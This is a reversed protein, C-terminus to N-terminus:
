SWARAITRWRHRAVARVTNGLSTRFLSSKVRLSLRLDASSRGIRIVHEGAPLVWRRAREDYRAFARAPIALRVPTVRGPEATVTGFAALTRV